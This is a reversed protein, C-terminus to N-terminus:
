PTNTLPNHPAIYKSGKFSFEKTPIQLTKNVRESFEVLSEFIINTTMDSIRDAGIGEEFLSMVMFLDPDDIDMNIIQYATNMTTNVLQPGFGSGKASSGYGLCTWGIESFSFLKKAAKWAVDSDKQEKSAKILKIIKTFTSIYENHANLRMENHKSEPLLMPDIFLLTDTELLVDVVDLQDLILPSINFYSSITDISKVTSM